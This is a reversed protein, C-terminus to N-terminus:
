RNLEDVMERIQRLLGRYQKKQKELLINTFKLDAIQGELELIQEDKDILDIIMELEAQSKVKKVRLYLDWVKQMKEEFPASFSCILTTNNVYKDLLLNLKQDLYNRGYTSCLRYGNGLKGDTVCGEEDIYEVKYWTYWNSVALARRSHILICKTAQSLIHPTTSCDVFDHEDISVYLTGVYRESEEDLSTKYREICYKAIDKFSDLRM